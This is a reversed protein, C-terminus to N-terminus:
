TGKQKQERWQDFAARRAAPLHEVAKEAEPSLGFTEANNLLDMLRLEFPTVEGHFVLGPTTPQDSSWPTRTYRIREIVKNYYIPDILLVAPKGRWRYGQNRGLAQNAADALHWANLERQRKTLEFHANLTISITPNAVSLKIISACETLTNLGRINSLNYEAGIGNAILCVSETPFEKRLQEAIAILVGHNGRRTITTKITTVHCRANQPLLINAGSHLMKLGVNEMTKQAYAATIYETTLVLLKPRNGQNSHGKTFAFGLTMRRPRQEFHHNRFTKINHMIAGSAHYAALGKAYAASMGQEIWYEVTAWESKLKGLKSRKHFLYEADDEDDISRLWDFDTYDPDDIVAVVKSFGIPKEITENGKEIIKVGTTLGLPVWWPNKWSLSLAQFASITLMMVDLNLGDLMPASYGEHHEAFFDAADVDLGAEQFREALADITAQVIVQPTGYPNLPETQVLEFDNIGLEALETKFHQAKSIYRDIRLDPWRQRFGNEQEILQKNSKSCFVVKHGLEVLRRVLSSKGYGEPRVLIFADIPWKQAWGNPRDIRTLACIKQAQKELDSEADTGPKRKKSKTEIEVPVFQSTGNLVAEVMTLFDDGEAYDTLFHGGELDDLWPFETETSDSLFDLFSDDM